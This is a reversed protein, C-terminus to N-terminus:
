TTEPGAYLVYIETGDANKMPTIASNIHQGADGEQVQMSAFMEVNPLVIIVSRDDNTFLLSGSIRKPDFDYGNYHYTKGTVITTSDGSQGDIKNFFIDLLKDSISPYQISIDTNGRTVKTAWVEQSVLKIETRDPAGTDFTVGGDLPPLQIDPTLQKTLDEAVLAKSFYYAEKMSIFLTKLDAMKIQPALNLENM